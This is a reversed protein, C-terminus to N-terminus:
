KSLLMKKSDMRLGNSYLTYFYVGSTLNSASFNVQYTGASQNENVLTSVEKGLVNYVKITVLSNEKVSYRIETSPNFPNPYNQNLSFSEPTTSSIPTIGTLLFDNLSRPIIQYGSNYPSSSKYQSQLAVVSFPYAPITTGAINSSTYIRIDCSDTGVFLRYNTGSGSTAWTTAPTGTSTKIQTIGNIRILMGEYAEGTANRIISPTVTKIVTPRNSSIKTFSNVPNLEALGNYNTLLGTVEISDGTTVANWIATDYAVLGATWNQFYVTRAGLEHNTTVVGRTTVTTNTLLPVFNADEVRISDLSIWQANVISTLAIFILTIIIKGM